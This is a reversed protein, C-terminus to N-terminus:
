VGACRKVEKAWEDPYCMLLEEHQLDQEIIDPNKFHKEYRARYKAGMKLAYFVHMTACEVSIQEPLKTVLDTYFQRKLDEKHFFEGDVGAGSFMDMMKKAYDGRKEMRKQMFRSKFGGNRILKYMIPVMLATELKATLVETEDLDSSGLIGHEVTVNHRAFLLGVFSGGLSCGYAAKVKGGYHKKIYEKIKATEDLMSAFHSQETEDFGDYSVCAVLFSDTLKDIVGSFNLKWHCGTGPLLLIVPKNKDGFEYVKM